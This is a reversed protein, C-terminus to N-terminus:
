IQSGKLFEKLKGKAYLHRMYTNFDTFTMAEETDIRHITKGTVRARLFMGQMHQPLLKRETTDVGMRDAIATVNLYEPMQVGIMPTVDLFCDAYPGDVDYGVLFAYSPM